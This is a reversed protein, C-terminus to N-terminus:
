GGLVQLARAYYEDRSAKGNYGGNVRYTIADFNGADAYQNLNRNNWYWAATRFGVDPDAARTPNNELDIGLAQGAARYNSRGTLQIPGRGKFRMGDGPETNGLDTRGEYDAGSAIEEMYRFEGSEHALQALFAAQRKPTNIGAEQMAANLHPLMQQARAESLNPMISRLQQMSVGGAPGPENGPGTVPGPGTPGSSGGAKATLAERTLPGYYGTSPVGHDAQFRKLSAETQPGFTGPGTDMQAQTMYGLDVLASQLQRVEEGQNGRQLDNQPVSFRAAETPAGPEPAGPETPTSPAPEGPGQTATGRDNVFYKVNANGFSDKVHGDNFNRAGAQALAPGRENIEGPRVVGIHGIGGPNHWSAVTPHGQNAMQQAEEASVERWGHAPGQNQLWLHGGNADLERGQGVGTPNGAGDVWHPIEAGMAKTVDWAFINCYTNGDRPQYRPNSGVGFQDIVDAYTAANRDSPSGQLPADVPIWANTNTTGPAARTGDFQGSAASPISGPAPAPAPRSEFGDGAQPGSSPRPKADFGDPITLQRGTIILNPNQINNAKAIADVSSNYRRAISSLTEGSNITHITSM